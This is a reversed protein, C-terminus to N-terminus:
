RGQECRRLQETLDAVLRDQNDREKALGKLLGPFLDSPLAGRALVTSRYAEALAKPALARAAPPATPDPEFIPPIRGGVRALRARQDPPKDAQALWNAYFLRVVRLSRESDRTAYIRADRVQPQYFWWGDPRNQADTNQVAEQGDSLAKLSMIYEVKLVESLPASMRDIAIVEDRARRLLAADTRKDAAWHAIRKCAREHLHVGAAREIIVGHRGTHRSSRLIARYWGWAGAMDGQEELRSGQLGALWGFYRLDQTLPILTSFRLEAPPHYLADPRETGYRWLELAEQNQEVWARLDARTDSWAADWNIDDDGQKFNFLVMASHAAGYAIFANRDSPVAVASLESVDFPDGVDPVDWVWAARWLAIALVLVIVALVFSAIRGRRRSRGLWRIPTGLMTIAQWLPRKRLATPLAM